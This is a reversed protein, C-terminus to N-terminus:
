LVAAASNASGDWVEGCVTLPMRAMLRDIEVAKGVVWSWGTAGPGWGKARDVDGGSAGAEDETGQAEEEAALGEDSM